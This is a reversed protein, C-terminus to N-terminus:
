SENYHREIEKNVDDSMEKVIDITTDTFGNIDPEEVPDNLRDIYKMLIKGLRAEQILEDHYNRGGYWKPDILLEMMPIKNHYSNIIDLTEEQVPEADWTTYLNWSIDEHGGNWIEKLREYMTVRAGFSELVFPEGMFNPTWSLVYM